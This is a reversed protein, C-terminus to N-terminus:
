NIQLKCPRLKGNSFIFTLLFEVFKISKNREVLQTDGVGDGFAEVLKKRKNEIINIPLYPSDQIQCKVNYFVYIRGDIEKIEIESFGDNVKHVDGRLISIQTIIDKFDNVVM